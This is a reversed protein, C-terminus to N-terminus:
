FIKEQRFDKAEKASTTLLARLAAPPPQPPPIHGLKGHMCCRTYRGAKTQEGAFHLAGCGYDKPQTGAGPGPIKCIETMAGAYHTEVRADSYADLPVHALMPIKQDLAHAHCFWLGNCEYRGRQVCPDARCRVEEGTRGDFQLTGIYRGQQLTVSGTM